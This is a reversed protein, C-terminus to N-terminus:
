RLGMVAECALSDVAENWQIGSHGPIHKFILEVEQRIIHCDAILEKWYKLNKVADGGATRWNRTIWAKYWSNIGEVCYKSDSYVILRNVNDVLNRHNIIYNLSAIIGSLEAINNTIESMYLSESYLQKNTVPDVIIFAYAGDGPNSVCAGDTYIHLEKKNLEKKDPLPQEEKASPVEIIM